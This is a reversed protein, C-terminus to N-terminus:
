RHPELTLVAEAASTLWNPSCRAHRLIRWRKLTAMGREVPYRLRAHARNLSRQSATLEKGPKRRTSRSWWRRRRRSSEALCKSFAM